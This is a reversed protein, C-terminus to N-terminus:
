EKAADTISELVSPTCFREAFARLYEAQRPTLETVGESEYILHCLSHAEIGDGYRYLLNSMQERIDVREVQTKQLNMYLPFEKFNVKSM